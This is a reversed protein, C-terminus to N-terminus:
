LDAERIFMEGIREKELLDSAKMELIKRGSVFVCGRDSVKLAERANQEVMLVAVGTDRIRQVEGFVKQRAIPSLAASPEDLLLMNPRLMLVRGMALTQRQGGSLSSARESLQRSLDPFMKLVESIREKLGSKLIYGGIELNEYVSLSTFVNDTQPVFGAGARVLLPATYGTVDKGQLMVRGSMKSALGFIAKLFTSKGAGNPGVITVIEGSHVCLSIGDVIKADGYGASLKEVQLITKEINNM